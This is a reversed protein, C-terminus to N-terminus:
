LTLLLALKMPIPFKSLILEWNWAWAHATPWWMQHILMKLIRPGRAYVIALLPMGWSDCSEATKGMNVLMGRKEADGLNVHVSVADAGLRLAEEVSGVLTKSNCFLPLATSASLYMILAARRGGAPHCQRVPEKHMVLADAGGALMDNMTGHTDTLGQIAGSTIGHDM